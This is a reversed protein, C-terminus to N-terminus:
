PSSIAWGVIRGAVGAEVVHGQAHGGVQEVLAVAGLQASEPALDEPKSSISTMVSSRWRSMRDHTCQSWNMKRMASSSGMRQGRM